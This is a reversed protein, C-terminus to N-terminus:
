HGAHGSPESVRNEAVTLRRDIALLAGIAADADSRVREAVDVLLPLGTEGGYMLHHNLSLLVRHQEELLSRLEAVEASLQNIQTSLGLARMVPGPLVRKLLSKDM